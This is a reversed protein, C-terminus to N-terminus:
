NMSYIIDANFITGEYRLEIDSTFFAPRQGVVSQFIESCSDLKIDLERRLKEDLYIKTFYLQDDDGTIVHSANM